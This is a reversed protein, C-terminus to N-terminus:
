RPSYQFSAIPGWETRWKPMLAFRKKRWHHLRLVIYRELQDDPMRPSVVLVLITPHQQEFHGAYRESSKIQVEARGADTYVVCDCGGLDEEPTSERFGYYWPPMEAARLIDFCRLEAEAGIFMQYFGESLTRLTDLTTVRDLM